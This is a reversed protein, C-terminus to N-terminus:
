NTIDDVHGKESGEDGPIDDLQLFSVRDFCLLLCSCAYDRVKDLDFLCEEIIKVAKM